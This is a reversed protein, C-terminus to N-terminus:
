FDDITLRGERFQQSRPQESFQRNIFTSKQNNIQKICATGASEM